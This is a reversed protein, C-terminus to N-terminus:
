GKLADFRALFENLDAEIKEIGGLVDSEINIPLVPDHLSLRMLCWGKKHNETSSIRVGEHNPTVITYGKERAFAEFAKIVEQGYAQFNPDLIKVRREKAEKPENLDAILDDLKKGDKILKAYTMLIRVILYAGDDLFYNEKLAAHGSTEIALPANVGEETLRVAENIVNKYGRKFRHHQGGLNKIFVELGESTVSDTVITAGPTEDILIASILAILKNRNIEKGDSAVIAARDVDTDFIIGLDAKNTVVCSSIAEMAEQDEPNPIHNPFNGDPDLFQSGETNAGLAQLVDKAFFGGAGNGADLVIHKGEFPLETNTASRILSVLHESYFKMLEATPYGKEVHGEPREEECATVIDKIDPKNLGGDRTFFKFGNRNFPLHSATIMIAANANIAEFKTSMFMAPTSALGCYIPTSGALAIGEMLGDKLMSASLRSDNGVAVLRDKRESKNLWKAFHYGITKAHDYTLTVAEDKVGEIAVGRIDTGNQLNQFKM